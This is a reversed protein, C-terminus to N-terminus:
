TAAVAIATGGGIVATGGSLLAKESHPLFETVVYKPFEWACLYATGLVAYGTGKYGNLILNSVALVTPNESLQLLAAGALVAVGTTATAKLATSLNLKYESDPKDLTNATAQLAQSSRSLPIM